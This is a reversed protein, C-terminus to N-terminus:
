TGSNAQSIFKCPFLNDEAINLCHCCSQLFKCVHGCFVLVLTSRVCCVLLLM